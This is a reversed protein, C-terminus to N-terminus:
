TYDYKWHLCSLIWGIIVVEQPYISILSSNLMQFMFKIQLADEVKIGFKLLSFRKSLWSDMYIAVPDEWNHQMELHYLLDFKEHIISQIDEHVQQNPKVMNCIDPDKKKLDDDYEDLIPAEEYFELSM